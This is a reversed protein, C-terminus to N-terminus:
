PAFHGRSLAGPSTPFPVYLAAAERWNRGERQQQVTENSQKTGKLFRRVFGGAPKARTKKLSNVDHARQFVLISDQLQRRRNGAGSEANQEPKSGLCLSLLSCFGKIKTPCLRCQESPLRVSHSM